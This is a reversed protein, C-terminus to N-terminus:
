GLDAQIEGTLYGDDPFTDVTGDNWTVEWEYEFWYATDTEGEVWEYIVNGDAPTGDVAATYVVLEADYPRILLRIQTANALNVVGNEDSLTGRVPKGTDHQKTRYDPYNM